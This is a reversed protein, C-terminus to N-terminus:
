DKLDHEIKEFEESIALSEGRVRLSAAMLRKRRQEAAIGANMTELAVRVYEARSVKLEKAHQDAETLLDDPLRLSITSM